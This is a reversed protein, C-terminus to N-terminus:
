RDRARTNQLRSPLSIASIAPQDQGHDHGSPIRCRSLLGYDYASRTRLGIGSHLPHDGTVATAPIQSSIMIAAEQNGSQWQVLPMPVM